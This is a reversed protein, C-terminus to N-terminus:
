VITKNCLERRLRQREEERIRSVTRSLRFLDDYTGNNLGGRRLGVYIALKIQRDALICERWSRLAEWGNCV